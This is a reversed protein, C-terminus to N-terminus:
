AILQRNKKNGIVPYFIIKIRMNKAKQFIAYVQYFYRHRVRFTYSFHLSSAKKTYSSLKLECDFCRLLGTKDAPRIIDSAAANRKYAFRTGRDLNTLRKFAPQQNRITVPYNLM